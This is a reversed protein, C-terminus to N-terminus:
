KHQDGKYLKTNKQSIIYTSKWNKVNINTNNWNYKFNNKEMKMNKEM